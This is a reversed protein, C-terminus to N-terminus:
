KNINVPEKLDYVVVKDIVLLHQNVNDPNAYDPSQTDYYPDGNSDYCKALELIKNETGAPKYENARVEFSHAVTAWLKNGDVIKTFVESFQMSAKRDVTNGIFLHSDNGKLESVYYSTTLRTSGLHGTIAVRTQDTIAGLDVKNILYHNNALSITRPVEVKGNTTISSLIQKVQDRLADIQRQLYTTNNQVTTRLQNLSNELQGLKNNLTNIQGQLNDIKGQLDTRVNELNDRVQNIQTQLNDIKGQLDARVKELDARLKDIDPMLDKTYIGDDLAKTANLTQKSIKVYAKLTETDDKNLWEGIKELDVTNTDEVQLNRDLLKNIAQIIFDLQRTRYAIYDYYSKANTNYDADDDYWPRFHRKDGFWHSLSNGDKNFHPDNGDYWPLGAFWEEYKGM